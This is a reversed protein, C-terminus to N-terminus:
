VPQVAMMGGSAGTAQRLCWLRRASTEAAYPEKRLPQRMDPLTRWWAFKAVECVVTNTDMKIYLLTRLSAEKSWAVHRARPNDCSVYVRTSTSM